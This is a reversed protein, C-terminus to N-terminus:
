AYVDIRPHSSSLHPDPVPAVSAPERAGHVTGDETRPLGRPEGRSQEDARGHLDFRGQSDPRPQADSTTDRASLDVSAGPAAASLDRRLDTLIVRLAELDHLSFEDLRKLRPALTANM